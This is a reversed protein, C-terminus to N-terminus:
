VPVGEDATLGTGAGAASFASSNTSTSWYNTMRDNIEDLCVRCLVGKDQDRAPAEGCKFCICVKDTATM